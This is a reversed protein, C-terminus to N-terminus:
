ESFTSCNSYYNVMFYRDRFNSSILKRDVTVAIHYNVEANPTTTIMKFYSECSSDAQLELKSYHSGSSPRNDVLYFKKPGHDYSNSAEGNGDLVVHVKDFPDTTTFGFTRCPESTAICKAHLTITQKFTDKAMANLPNFLIILLFSPVFYNKM